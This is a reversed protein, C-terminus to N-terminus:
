QIVVFPEDSKKDFLSENSQQHQQQQTDISADQIVLIVVSTAKENTDDSDSDSSVSELFVNDSVVCKAKLIILVTLIAAILLNM